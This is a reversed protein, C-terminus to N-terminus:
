AYRPALTGTLRNAAAMVAPPALDGRKIADIRDRLRRKAFRNLCPQYM